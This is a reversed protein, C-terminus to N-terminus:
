SSFILFFVTLHCMLFMKSFSPTLLLVDATNAACSNFSTEQAVIYDGMSKDRLSLPKHFNIFLMAHGRNLIHKPYPASKNLDM